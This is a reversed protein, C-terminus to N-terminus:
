LSRATGEKAHLGDRSNSFLWLQFYLFLLHWRAAPLEQLSASFNTQGLQNKEVQAVVTASFSPSSM